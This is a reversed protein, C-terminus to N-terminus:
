QLSIIMNNNQKVSLQCTSLSLPYRASIESLLELVLALGPTNQKWGHILKQFLLFLEPSRMIWSRMVTRICDFKVLPAFMYSSDEEYNIEYKIKSCHYGYQIDTWFISAFMIINFHMTDSSINPYVINPYMDMKLVKNM